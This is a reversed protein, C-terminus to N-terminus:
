NCTIYFREIRRKYKSNAKNALWDRRSALAEDYSSYSWAMTTSNNFALSKTSSAVEGNYFDIFQYKISNDSKNCDYSVINTTIDIYGNNGPKNYKTDWEIATIFVYRTNVTKEPNSKFSLVGFTTALLFCLTLLKKM